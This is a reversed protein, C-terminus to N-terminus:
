VCVNDDVARSCLVTREVTRLVFGEGGEDPEAFIHLREGGVSDDGFGIVDVTIEALDGVQPGDVVVISSRPDDSARMAAVTEGLQRMTEARPRDEPRPAIETTIDDVGGPQLLYSTNAWGTRGESTIESWIGEDGLGRNHGTAAVGTALPELEFVVDFDVGPGSRVNLTDDAAVGVVALPAGEYPYIEIREGPLAGDAPPATTSTTSTAVTTTTGDAGTGSGASTTGDGGCAAGLVAVVVAVVALWGLHRM